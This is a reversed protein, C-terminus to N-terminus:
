PKSFILDRALVAIKSPACHRCEDTAALILLQKILCQCQRQSAFKLDAANINKEAMIAKLIECDFPIVWRHSRTHLVLESVTLKLNSISSSHFTM